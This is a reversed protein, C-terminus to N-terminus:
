MRTFICFCDSHTDLLFLWKILHRFGYCLKPNLECLQRNRRSHLLHRHLIAVFLLDDLHLVVSPRKLFQRVSCLM